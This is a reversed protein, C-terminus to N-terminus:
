QCNSPKTTTATLVGNLVTIYNMGASGNSNGMELCGPLSSTGISITANTGGVQFASTWATGSANLYLWQNITQDYIASGAAAPKNNSAVWPKDEAVMRILPQCVNDGWYYSNFSTTTSGRLQVVNDLLQIGPTPANCYLTIATSMVSTPLDDILDNDIIRANAGSGAEYVFIPTKYAGNINTDESMGADRITNGSITLDSWTGTWRIGAVPANEILNNTISVNTATMSEGFGIGISDTNGTRLSTEQDFIITNGSINVDAVPLTSQPEFTIGSVVTSGSYSDQHIMCTNGTVSVGRLGYGTTHTSYPYSWLDICQAATTFANGSISVSNSDNLAIGTINAGKVFGYVSNGTVSQQPGHTEIATQAAPAAFSAAQFRNNAVVISGGAPDSQIYVSSEDHAYHNPDDGINIFNSNVVSDNGNGAYIGINNMASSNQITIGSFSINSGNLSFEVRGYDSISSTVPNNAVNSDVTFNRFSCGTTCTGFFVDNYDGVNNAVKITGPGSIQVGSTVLLAYIEGGHNSPTVTYTGATLYVKQYTNIAAQLMATANAGGAPPAVFDTGGIVVNGPFTTTAGSRGITIGTATSTGISITNAGDIVVSGDGSITTGSFMLSANALYIGSAAVAIAGAVSLSTILKKYSNM